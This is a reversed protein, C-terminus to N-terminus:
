DLNIKYLDNQVLKFRLRLKILDDHSIKIPKGIGFNESTYKRYVIKSLEEVFNNM